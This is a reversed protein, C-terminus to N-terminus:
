ERFYNVEQPHQPEYQEYQNVQDNAYYYDENNYLGHNAQAEMQNPYQDVLADSENDQYVNEAQLLYDNQQLQSIALNDSSQTDAPESVPEYLEAADARTYDNNLDDAWTM